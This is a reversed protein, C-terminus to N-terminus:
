GRWNTVILVALFVTLGVVLYERITQKFLRGELKAQGLGLLVYMTMTLFLSGVVVSVPWFFMAVSVMVLSYSFLISYRITARTIKRGTGSAQWLGQLFLPFSILLVVAVTVPLSAKISLIADLLLFSSFLTLVFGVGKAARALAIKRIAAVSYINATAVLAYIGIGYLVLIPLMAFITSPLLFWFLGVGLTFAVPLILVLLTANKGLGERLSWFFLILTVIALAGIGLFRNDGDLSLLGLFGSTLLFSTIVYKKRKTM